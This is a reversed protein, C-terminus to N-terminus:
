FFNVTLSVFDIDDLDNNIRTYELELQALGLSLGLGLGASTDTSADSAGNVSIDSRVIGGKAKLYAPGASRFVAYGGLTDIEWDNLGAKGDDITTTYEGELSVDGVVLGIIDRGLVVGANTADDFGNADTAMYGAKAGIYWGDALAAAPGIALAAALLTNTMVRKM